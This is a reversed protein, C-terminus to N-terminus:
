EYHALAPHKLRRLALLTLTGACEDHLEGRDLFKMWETLRILFGKLYEIDDLKKPGQVIPDTPVGLFPWFRQTMQRANVPAGPTVILPIVRELKFGSEEEFERKACAAMREHPPLEMESKTPVGSPPVIVVGAGHKFEATLLLLDEPLLVFTTAWDRFVDRFGTFPRGNPDEHFVVETMPAFREIEARQAPTLNLKRYEELPMPPKLEKWPRIGLKDRVFELVRDTIVIPFGYKTEM